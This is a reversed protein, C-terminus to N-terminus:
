KQSSLFDLLVQQSDRPRDTMFIHSANPLKIVKAQAIRQAIVDANGPPVLRDHEGHVILTPVTIQPLRSYAEWALIAQLQAMYGQPNPYWESLVDLDEDIRDRPTSADYIFPVAAEAREAPGGGRNFLMQLAAADAQVSHAGGPATCSLLLSRVRKPYQLAFEQAIMGGMSAGILHASELGAADLVAAADAAMTAMVYPGPPVDSRGAGRNDFAITRYREALAPRTRHWMNSAWGLGMILLVPEGSGSEDWYIKTGDNEAFPM